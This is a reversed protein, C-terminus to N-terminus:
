EQVRNKINQQLLNDPMASDDPGFIESQKSMWDSTGSLSNMVNDLRVSLLDPDSSVSAEENLLTVQKEIRDLEAEVVKLNEKAKILNELRRKQIDFTGQLSRCLPSGEPELKLKEELDKTENELSKLDTTKIIQTMKKKSSLLKLFMWVLQNLGSTRFDKFEHRNDTGAVRIIAACQDLLRRYRDRGDSDLSALLQNQKQGWEETNVEMQSSQVVKQYNANSAMVGLYALEGALTLFWFGPNGFGLVFGLALAIKNIPLFGLASIKFKQHFAAKVYDFFNLPANKM